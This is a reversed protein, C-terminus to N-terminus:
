WRREIKYAKKPPRVTRHLLIIQNWLNL